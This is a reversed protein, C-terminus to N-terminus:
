SLFERVMLYIFINTLTLFLTVILAVRGPIASLPIIFSIQSIIVIAISPFYYQLLYPELIRELTLNFGCKRPGNQLTNNYEIFPGRQIITVAYGNTIHNWKEPNEPVDLFCMQGPPLSQSFVCSQTDMPFYLFILNM